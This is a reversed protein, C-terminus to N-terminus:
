NAPPLSVRLIRSTAGQHILLDGDATPRMHRVIGAYAVEGDEGTTPIPWSQFTETRPDFRVLMDPRVGSENYWVIGDMVELAYPHSRPGSPSDWEKIEGTEPNFRAIRGQASNDLWIMGDDALDLRRTTAEPEPLRYETLAMTQPDVKYLGGGNGNRAVWVTGDGAIKLGYPRSNESPATVLRIEETAPDFRGIMNSQQLTFWLIGNADFEGTHPDRAAPDPMRYVVSPQGTQPDFKGITGNGNGMFWAGGEADITVSHPLTEPPLDWEQAEGTAPDLRGITNGQQGVWWISGDPAEVPDRTRTGLRPATWETFTIELPGDVPTAARDENPPYHATLYDLITARAPSASLDVMGDTVVAWDERTFGSSNVIMNTIHCATCVSEVIEKGEGDALPAPPGFQALAPSSLAGLAGAFLITRVATM